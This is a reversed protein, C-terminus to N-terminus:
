SKGLISQPRIALVILFVLHGELIGFGPDIRFGVAQSVGLVMSGIFAGWISGMGGIIVAEFAYILQAPGDSPAVTSRLGQFVAAFGLIGVAIATAASYIAKPNVGTLAAAGVDASSARLASGFRTYRLLADLGGTLLTAVVLVIVPLVGIFIPGLQFSAQEIGGGPMSRTDASWIQLMLNQLAVSLGFTAILSPLPDQGVVRNLV